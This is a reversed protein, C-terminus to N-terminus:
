YNLNELFYKLCKNEKNIRQIDQLNYPCRNELLFDLNHQREYEIAYYIFKDSFSTTEIHKIKRIDEHMVIYLLFINPLKMMSSCCNVLDLRNEQLYFLLNEITPFSQKRMFFIIHEEKNLYEFFNLGSYNVKIEQSYFKFLKIKQFKLYICLYEPFKSLYSKYKQLYLFKVSAFFLSVSHLIEYKKEPFYKSYILKLEPFYLNKFENFIMESGFKTISIKLSGSDNLIKIWNQRIYKQLTKNTVSLFFIHSLPFYQKIYNIMIKNYLM